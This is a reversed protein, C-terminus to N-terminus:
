TKYHEIRSILDHIRPLIDDRFDQKKEDPLSDLINNTSTKLAQELDQVNNRKADNNDMIRSGLMRLMAAIMQDSNDLKQRFLDRTIVVLTCDDLAEVSAKRPGDHLLAMEGFIQGSELTALSVKNNEAWTYVHVRGSQVLYATTGPDGEHFIDAGAVYCTREYLERAHTRKRQTM